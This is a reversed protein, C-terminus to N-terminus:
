TVNDSRKKRPRLDDGPDGVKFKPRNYAFDTM